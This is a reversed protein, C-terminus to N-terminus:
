PCNVDTATGGAVTVSTVKANGSSDVCWFKSTDSRLRAFLAWSSMIGTGSVAQTGNSCLPSTGSNVAIGSMADAIGSSTFVTGAINCATASSTFNRGVNSTSFANNDDQYLLAASRIQSAQNKIASDQGKQRASNLNVIVIGSLIGIIAIVVLLEILTFAKLTSNIKKIKMNKSIKYKNINYIIKL